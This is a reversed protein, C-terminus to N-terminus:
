TCQKCISHKQKSKFKFFILNFIPLIYLYFLYPICSADAGLNVIPLLLAINWPILASIIIATNELDVALTDNDMENKEYAKKNLMHTLIVAIAQSCGFASTLIGTIIMNRFLKYRSNAKYTMNEISNLMGTEEFIGSFASSVFIVLSTKLMSIIGGGKIISYLPNSKDMSYGLIIFRISNIIGNHQIIISLLFAIIISILMSIKVNVKFLSLIIIVLAPLLVIMNVDFVKLIESNIDTSAKHLPFIQSVVSYFIISIFFPMICTKIMNKINDYINTETICAVLSASSSMPSCRDGFYAGAIIAGATAAINVGGGRAIVILAIGVTGVTGFSTGILVSVFSSILFASLIFINPRLLKIGYYVIASVTGSAMWIATIAGILVFIKIVIISKKGGRYAMIFVKKAPYGRKVAAVFFLILGIVLPYVVFIGKYISLILLLFTIIFCIILDM